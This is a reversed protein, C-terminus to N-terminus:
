QCTKEWEVKVVEPGSAETINALTRAGAKINGTLVGHQDIHLSLVVATQGGALDPYRLQVDASKSAGASRVGRGTLFSRASVVRGNKRVTATDNATWAINLVDPNSGDFRILTTPRNEYRVAYDALYPQDTRYRFPAPEWWLTATDVLAKECALQSCRRRTPCSQEGECPECYQDFTKKGTCQEVLTFTGTHASTAGILNRSYGRSPFAGQSSQNVIWAAELRNRIASEALIAKEITGVPCQAATRNSCSLATSLAVITMLTKM